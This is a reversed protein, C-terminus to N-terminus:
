ETIHYREQPRFSTVFITWIALLAGPIFLVMAWWRSYGYDPGILAAILGTLTLLVVLVRILVKM